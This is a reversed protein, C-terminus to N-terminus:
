ADKMGRRCVHTRPMYIYVYVHIHRYIHICRPANGLALVGHQRLRRSDAVEPHLTEPIGCIVAAACPIKPPGSIVGLTREVADQRQKRWAEPKSILM